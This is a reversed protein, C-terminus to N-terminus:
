MQKFLNVALLFIFIGYLINIQIKINVDDLAIAHVQETGFLKFAM